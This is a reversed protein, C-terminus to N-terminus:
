NAIIVEGNNISISINKKTKTESFRMNKKFEFWKSKSEVEFNLEGIQIYVKQGNGKLM